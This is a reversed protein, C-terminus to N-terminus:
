HEGLSTFGGDEDDCVQEANVQAYVNALCYIADAIRNLGEAIGENQSDPTQKSNM